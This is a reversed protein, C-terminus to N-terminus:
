KWVYFRIANIIKLLTQKISSDRNTQNSIPTNSINKSNAYYCKISLFEQHNNQELHSAYDKFLLTIDPRQMFNFRNQYVSIAHKKNIKYGSFHFFVLPYSDNVYLSDQVITINREQLNWYAMNYGPHTLIHVNKFFIPVLNIWLQDVFLGNKIDMFCHERLRNMWWDLFTLANETRKVAIFGLNYIGTNLFDKENPVYYDTIPKTIHPTIVIDNEHLRNELEEFKNYVYIDPDFYIVTSIENKSKFLYKIFFPKVATNLETLNYKSYLSDFSEIGIKEVEIIEFPITDAFENETNLKDVLGIVITYDPNTKLLSQGFIKAQALYNKSCITLAIKM